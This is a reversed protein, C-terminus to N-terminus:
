RAVGIVCVDKKCRTEALVMVATEGVVKKRFLAAVVSVSVTVPVLKTALLVKQTKVPSHVHESQKM